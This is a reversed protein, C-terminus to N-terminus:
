TTLAILEADTLATNYLKVEKYRKQFLDVLTDPRSDLYFRTFPPLGSFSM